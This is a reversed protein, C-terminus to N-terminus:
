RVARKARLGYMMGIALWLFSQEPRPTLSGDTVSAILFSLLGAAAGECFGRLTPSLTTDRSMVRFDRWVYAFFTCVLILGVIGMDLLAQLYANHPHTTELVTAGGATRVADSWLISGLGSGFIPNRGVEPLLPLWLGDIRGASVANLGGAFGTTVRDYVADPLVFPVLAAVLGLFILARANRHWVLFLLNVVILGVFAGRSFTLVLAAVVLGMSVLLVLRLGFQKSEAWTFLLLAYAIAYLRGLENAHMGLASLFERSTSSGMEGLGTGFLYVFVLVMLGMAWISVLTPALFREPRASRAVAAGVLLAFVVLLLPKLVMDRLYGAANNFELMKRMYYVPVIDDVHRSGLAGAVIIPVVYLWLLQQPVFRSLSGDFLGRLLYSGLTALLLLNLPNLGTVGFMEHPFVVSGSVPMLVVLLAVGIRFDYLIFACSIIAACLYLANLESTAIVSGFVVGLVAIGALPLLPQVRQNALFRRIEDGRARVFAGSHVAAM